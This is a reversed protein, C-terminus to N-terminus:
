AKLNIASGEGWAFLETWPDLLLKTCLGARTAALIDGRCPHSLAYWSLIEGVAKCASLDSDMIEVVCSPHHISFVM